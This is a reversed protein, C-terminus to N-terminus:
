HEAGRLLHAQEPVRDDGPNSGYHWLLKLSSDLFLGQFICFRSLRGLLTKDRVTRFIPLLQRHDGILVWKRAKLVGLLALFLPM